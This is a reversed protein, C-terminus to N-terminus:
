CFEIRVPFVSENSSRARSFHEENEEPKPELQRELKRLNASGSTKPRCLEKTAEAVQDRKSPKPM